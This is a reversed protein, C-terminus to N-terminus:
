FLSQQTINLLFSVLISDNINAYLTVEFDADRPCLINSSILQMQVHKLLNRLRACLKAYMLDGELMFPFSTVVMGTPLLSEAKLSNNLFLLFYFFLQQQRSNQFHIFIVVSRTAPMCWMVCHLSLQELGWLMAM